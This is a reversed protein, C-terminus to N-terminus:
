SKMCEILPFFQESSGDLPFLCIFFSLCISKNARSGKIENRHGRKTNIACSLDFPFYM